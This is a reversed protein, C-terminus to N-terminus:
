ARKRRRRRIPAKNDLLWQQGGDLGLEVLRFITKENYYPDLLGYVRNIIAAKRVYDTRFPVGFYGGIRDMKGDKDLDLTPDVVVGEEDVCWAHDIGVGYLAVKGEVYTLHPLDFALNSANMYCQGQKRRPLSFSHPGIPYDRGHKLMFDLLPNPGLSHFASKQAELYQRLESM